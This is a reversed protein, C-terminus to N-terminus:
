GLWPIWPSPPSQVFKGGSMVFSSIPMFLRSCVWKLCLMDDTLLNLGHDVSGQKDAAVSVASNAEEEEIVEELGSNTEVHIIMEVAM